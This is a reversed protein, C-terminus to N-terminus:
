IVTNSANPMGGMIMKLNFKNRKRHLFINLKQLLGKGGREVTMLLVHEITKSVNKFIHKFCIQKKFEMKILSIVVETKISANDLM